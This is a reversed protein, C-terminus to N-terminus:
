RRSPIAVEPRVALILAKNAGGPAASGLVVTQGLPVTLGTSLLTEADMPRGQYIGGPTRALRVRLRVSGASTTQVTVVDGDLAFRDEGASVTLSFTEAEGATASGEGLLHYGKYRFLGRLASELSDISPDRGPTDDAAILQFRFTLVTPSRDNERLLSDIRALIAPTEIVTVARVSGAEFVGAQPSRVYPSVLRAADGARLYRLPITRTILQPQAPAQATITSAVPTSAAMLCVIAALRGTRRIFNM